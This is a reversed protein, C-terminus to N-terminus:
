LYGLQRRFFVNKGGIKMENTKVMELPTAIADWWEILMVGIGISEMNASDIDLYEISKTPTSAKFM